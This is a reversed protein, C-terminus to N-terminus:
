RRATVTVEPEGCLSACFALIGAPKEPTEAILSARSSVGAAPPRFGFASDTAFAARSSEFTPPSRTVSSIIRASKAAPAGAFVSPVIL